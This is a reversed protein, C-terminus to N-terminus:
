RVASHNTNDEIIKAEEVITNSDPVYTHIPVIDTGKKWTKVIPDIFSWTAKVEDTSVFLMQEGAICDLLLKEYEEVYQVGRKDKRLVFDFTREEMEFDLGPRKSWFQITIGEQPELGIVVKNKYHEESNTPCLCPEPHKFTIVIEKKVEGMRKGGEFMVPIGEWRPLNLSTMVKFYTETISDPDVGKITRYGNYQARFTKKSADNETVDVLHKLVRAREERIAQADYSHPREMTVLALMQLVHNQGVDVLAGVSDYFAGREEVGLTEFFRIDIREIHKSNWNDEFLNNAFRFSLVNQIMEKALYHDIRYIQTEKFLTGLLEDLEVATKLDSGFPKEVLVRTWGTLPLPASRARAVELPIWGGEGGCPVTLGSTALHEFIGKYLEPPVALYFLKNTCVGWEEDINELHEALSIYCEDVDLLGQHYVFSTLFETPDSDKDRDGIYKTFSTRLHERFMEDTLERRAVGVVRFMTPLKGAKYLYFLAPAIKRAILDGTAGFIVLITPAISNKANNM